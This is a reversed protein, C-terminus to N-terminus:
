HLQTPPQPPKEGPEQAPAATSAPAAAHSAPAGDPQASAQMAANRMWFHQFNGNFVELLDSQTGSLSADVIKHYQSRGWRLKNFDDGGWRCLSIYAVHFPETVRIGHVSPITAYGRIDFNFTHHLKQSNAQLKVIEKKIKEAQTCGTLLWTRVDDEYFSLDDRDRSLMLLRYDIDNNRSFQKILESVPEWAFTMDLGFHEIVVKGGGAAKDLRERLDDLSEELSLLQADGHISQRISELTASQTHLRGFMDRRWENLIESLFLLLTVVIVLYTSPEHTFVPLIHLQVLAFSAVIVFWVIRIGWGAVAHFLSGSSFNFNLFKPLAM